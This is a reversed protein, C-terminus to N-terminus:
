GPRASWTASTSSPSRGASRAAPARTTCWACTTTSTWTSTAARRVGAPDDLGRPPLRPGQRDVAVPVAGAPHGPPDVAGPPDHGAAAGQLGADGRRGAAAIARLDRAGQRLLTSLVANMPGTHSSSDTEPMAVKPVLGHKHVLAVFMNWQGGDGTPDSLLHAVTRDDVDLDATEILAEFLFNAKELKDWFLLHNQSYEFDTVGLTRATHVRLLNLGAFLWCRGSKKQNTVKWDDLLHSVSHDIGTVVSRDLAVEAVPTRTVANQMLRNRPDAEFEKRLQQVQDQTLAQTM